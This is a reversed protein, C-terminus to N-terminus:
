PQEDLLSEGVPVSGVGSIKRVCITCTYWARKFMRILLAPMELSRFTKSAGERQATSLSNSEAVSTLRQISRKSWLRKINCDQGASRQYTKKACVMHKSTTSAMGSLAVSAVFCNLETLRVKVFARSVQDDIQIGQLM